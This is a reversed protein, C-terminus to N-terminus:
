VYLAQWSYLCCFGQAVFVDFAKCVATIIVGTVVDYVGCHSSTLLDRGREYRSRHWMFVAPPFHLQPILFRLSAIHRERLVLEGDLTFNFVHRLIALIDKATFICIHSFWRLGFITFLCCAHTQALIANQPLNILYLHELLVQHSHRRNGRRLWLHSWILVLCFILLSSLIHILTFRGTWLMQTVCQFYGFWGYNHPIKLIVKFALLPLLSRFNQGLIASVIKEISETRFQAKLLSIFRSSLQM